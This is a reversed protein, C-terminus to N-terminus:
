HFHIWPWIPVNKPVRDISISCPALLDAKLLSGSSLPMAAVVAHCCRGHRVTGEEKSSCKTRSSSLSTSTIELAKM